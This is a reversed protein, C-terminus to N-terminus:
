ESFMVNMFLESFQSFNELTGWGNKEADDILKKVIIFTEKYREKFTNKTIEDTFIVQLVHFLMILDRLITQQKSTMEEQFCLTVIEVFRDGFFGSIFNREDSSLSNHIFPFVDKIFHFVRMDYDFLRPYRKLLLYCVFKSLRPNKVLISQYSNNKWIESLIKVVHCTIEYPLVVSEM